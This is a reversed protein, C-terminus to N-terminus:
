TEHASESDAAKLSSTKATRYFALSRRSFICVYAWWLLLVLWVVAIEPSESPGKAQGGSLLAHPEWPHVWQYITRLIALLMFSAVLWRSVPRPRWACWSVLAVFAIVAANTAIWAVSSLTYESAAIAKLSIAYSVFKGCLVVPLFLLLGKIYWPARRFSNM